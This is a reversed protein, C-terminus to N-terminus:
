TESTFILIECQGRNVSYKQDLMFNHWIAFVLNWGLLNKAVLKGTCFNEKYIELGTLVLGLPYRNCINCFVVLFIKTHLFHNRFFHGTPVRSYPFSARFNKFFIKTSPFQNRFVNSTPVSYSFDVSLVKIKCFSTWSM